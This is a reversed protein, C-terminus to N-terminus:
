LSHGAPHPVMSDNSSLDDYMMPHTQFMAYPGRGGQCLPSSLARVVLYFYTIVPTPIIQNRYLVASM